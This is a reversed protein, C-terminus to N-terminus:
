SPTHTLESYPPTDCMALQMQAINEPDVEAQMDFDFLAKVTMARAPNKPTQWLM